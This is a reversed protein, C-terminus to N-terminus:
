EQPSHGCNRAGHTRIGGPARIHPVNEDHRMIMKNCRESTRTAKLSTTGQDEKQLKIGM